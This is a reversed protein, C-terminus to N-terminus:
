KIGAEKLVSNMLRPNRNALILSDNLTKVNFTQYEYEDKVGGGGTELATIYVENPAITTDNREHIKLVIETSSSDVYMYVYEGVNQYGYNPDFQTKLIGNAPIDYVRYGNEYKKAMGDEKSFFIFIQGKFGYPIRYKEKVAKPTCGAIICVFIIVNIVKM